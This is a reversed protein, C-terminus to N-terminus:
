QTAAEPVWPAERAAAAPDDEYRPRPVFTRLGRWAGVPGAGLLEGPRSGPAVGPAVAPARSIATGEGGPTHNSITM